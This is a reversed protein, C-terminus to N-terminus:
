KFVKNLAKDTIKDAEGKSADKAQDKASKTIEDPTKGSFAGDIANKKISTTEQKVDHKFESAFSLGAFSVVLM